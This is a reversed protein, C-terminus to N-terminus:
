HDLADSSAHDDGGGMSITGFFWGTALVAITALSAIICSLEEEEGVVIIDDVTSDVTNECRRGYYYETGGWRGGLRNDRDNNGDDDVDGVGGGVRSRDSYNSGTLLHGFDVDLPVTDLSTM